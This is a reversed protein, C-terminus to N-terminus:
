NKPLLEANVSPTVDITQPNNTTITITTSSNERPQTISARTTSCSTLGLGAAIATAAAIIAGLVIKAILKGKESM